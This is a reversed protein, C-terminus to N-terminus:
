DLGKAQELAVKMSWWIVLLRATEKGLTTQVQHWELSPNMLGPMNSTMILALVVARDKPTKTTCQAQKDLYRSVCQPSLCVGQTNKQITNVKDLLDASLLSRLPEQNPLNDVVHIWRQIATSRGKGAQYIGQLHDPIDQKNDLRDNVFLSDTFGGKIRKKFQSKLLRTAVGKIARMFGKSELAKALREPVSFMAHTLTDGLMINIVRNMHQYLLVIIAVEAKTRESLHSFDTTDDCFDEGQVTAKHVARAFDLVEERFTSESSMDVTHSSQSPLTSVESYSRKKVRKKALGAATEMMSHATICIRCSNSISVFKGICEALSRDLSGEAVMAEGMLSWVTRFVLPDVSHLSLPTNSGRCMM